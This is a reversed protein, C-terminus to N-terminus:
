VTEVSFAPRQRELEANKTRTEPVLLLFVAAGLSALLAFAYFTTKFGLHEVLLGSILPGAVGGITVTPVGITGGLISLVGTFSNTGSLILTRNRFSM